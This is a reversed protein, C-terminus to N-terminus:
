FSAKMLLTVWVPLLHFFVKHCRTKLVALKAQCFGFPTNWNTHRKKIFSKFFINHSKYSAHVQIRQCCETHTWELGQSGWRTARSQSFSKPGGCIQWIRSVMQCLPRIDSLIVHLKLNHFFLKTERKELFLNQKNKNRM